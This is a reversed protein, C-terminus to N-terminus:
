LDRFDGPAYSRKEALTAHMAEADGFTLAARDIKGAYQELVAAVEGASWLKVGAEFEGAMGARARYTRDEPEGLRARLAELLARYHTTDLRLTVQALRDDRFAADIRTVPVGAFHGAPLSCKRIPVADDCRLALAAALREIPTGIRALGIAEAYDDAASATRLGAALAILLLAAGTGARVRGTV